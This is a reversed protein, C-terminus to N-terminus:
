LGPRHRRLPGHVPLARRPCSRPWAASRRSSGIRCRAWNAWASLTTQWNAPFLALAALSATYTKTAAVAREPGTHLPIVAEAAAALPSDSRQHHGADPLGAAPRRGRRGRHRAVPGVTLHWCWREPWRSPAPVPYVALPDGPSRCNITLAGCTNPTAPPMTLLAGHPLSRM